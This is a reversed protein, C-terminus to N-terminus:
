SNENGYEKLVLANAAEATRTVSWNKLIHAWAEPMIELLHHHLGVIWSSDPEGMLTIGMEALEQNKKIFPRLGQEYQSFAIKYEGGAKALESALVYAGVLAISTGQGSLPSPGYGADGVLAIRGKSWHPMHIQAASDFYFDTSEKMASLIRPIKWGADAFAEELMKKQEKPNRVTSHKSTAPFAFCAKANPDKQSKYCSVFKQPANYEIESRELNLFNPIPFVSIYFGLERLFQSEDGFAVKRVTSHLGDAGIVLDFQRPASVEFEVHVGDSNESIKTISDGFICKVDDIARHLIQCLDGRMIELDGDSRSGSVHASLETVEGGTDDVCVTKEIATRADLIAPYLKMWKIVDVAVGRIDINYGGTRLVPNKEVVTPVFGHQKLWYALTLGAIGAGSILINKNKM